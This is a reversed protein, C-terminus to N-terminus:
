DPIAASIVDEASYYIHPLAFSESKASSKLIANLLDSLLTSALETEGRLELFRVIFFLYPFAAEGWLGVRRALALILAQVRSPDASPSHLELCALAGLIMTTRAALIVDGDCGIDGELLDTRELTENRLLALNRTLEIIALSFSNEWLKPSLSNRMRYRTICAALITWGEALAYHNEAEEFPKLLYSTLIVSSTIAHAADTGGKPPKGLVGKNLVAFLKPKPLLSRGDQLYIDLFMRLDQLDTPVFKRQAEVFWKLLESLGVFVLPACGRNKRKNDENRDNIQIRVPDTLE